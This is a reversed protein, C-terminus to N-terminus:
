EIELGVTSRSVCDARKIQFDSSDRLNATPAECEKKENIKGM